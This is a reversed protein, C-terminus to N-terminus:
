IRRENEDGGYKRILDARAEMEEDIKHEELWKDTINGYEEEIEGIRRQRFFATSLSMDVHDHDIAYHLELYEEKDADTESM